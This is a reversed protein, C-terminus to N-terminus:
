PQTSSQSQLRPQPWQIEPIEARKSKRIVAREIHGHAIIECSVAHSNKPFVMGSISSPKSSLLSTTRGARDQVPRLSAQRPRTAIRSGDQIQVATWRQHGPACFASTQLRPLSRGLYFTLGHTCQAPWMVVLCQLSSHATRSWPWRVTASSSHYKVLPRGHLVDSM